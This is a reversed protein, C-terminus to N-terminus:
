DAGLKRTFAIRYGEQHIQMLIMMYAETFIMFSGNYLEEGTGM